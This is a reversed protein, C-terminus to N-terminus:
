KKAKRKKVKKVIDETKEQVELNVQKIASQLSAGILNSPYKYELMKAMLQAVGKFAPIIQHLADHVSYTSLEAVVLDNAQPANIYVGNLPPKKWLITNMYSLIFKCLKDNVSKLETEKSTMYAINKGNSTM